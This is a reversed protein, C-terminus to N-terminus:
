SDDHVGVKVDFSRVIQMGHWAAGIAASTGSDSAHVVAVQRALDGLPRRLPGDILSWSASLGGGVVLVEAGFRDLWPALVQGLLWFASSFVAAAPEDGRLAFAAVDAADLASGPATARSAYALVIARSSVSEELPRGDILLRYVHGDPPVSPGSSVVTGGDLFVSGVGTGLTIAVVRRYGRASGALWEGLGFAEADNLFAIRGPPPSLRALLARRVDVGALSDFKGVDRFQGIGNAYDFPGPIAVALTEASMLALEAACSAMTAIIAEASGSSDLAMRHQSGPVLKWTSPDVRSAQVHTGGVELLPCSTM